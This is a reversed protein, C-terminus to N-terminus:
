LANWRRVRSQTDESDRCTECKQQNPLYLIIRRAVVSPVVQGSMMIVAPLFFAFMCQYTTVTM